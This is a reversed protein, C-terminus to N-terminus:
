KAIKRVIVYKDIKRVFVDNGLSRTTALGMDEVADERNWTERELKQMDAMLHIITKRVESAQQEQHEFRERLAKRMFKLLALSGGERDLLAIVATTRTLICRRRHSLTMSQLRIYPKFPENPGPMWSIKHYVSITDGSTTSRFHKMSRRTTALTPSTLPELLTACGQVEALGKFWNRQSAEVYKIIASESLKGTADLDAPLIKINELGGKPGEGAIFGNIRAFLYHWDQSRIDLIHAARKVQATDCGFALCNGIRLVTYPSLFRSVPGCKEPPITQGENSEESQTIPEPQNSNDGGFLLSKLTGFISNSRPRTSCHLFPKTVPLLLRRSPASLGSSFGIRSVVRM